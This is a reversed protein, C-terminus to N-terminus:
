YTARLLKTNHTDILNLLLVYGVILITHKTGNKVYGHIM